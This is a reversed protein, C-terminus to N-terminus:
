GGGCYDRARAVDAPTDLDRLVEADMVDIQVLRHRLRLGRLGLAPPLDLAEAFLRRPLWLPHGGQGGYTPGCLQDDAACLLTRVTQPSVLPLDVPWILAGQAAAAVLPLAVQVSSLMGQEPQGNWAWRVPLHASERQIQEGHPPGIAVVLDEAGAEAAREIVRQLLTRGDSTLRLLAKAQGM